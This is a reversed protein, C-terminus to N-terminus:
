LDKIVMSIERTMIAGLYNIMSSTKKQTSLPKIKMRKLLKKRELSKNLLQNNNSLIFIKGSRSIVNITETFLEESNESAFSLNSEDLLNQAYINNAHVAVLVILAASSKKLFSRFISIM